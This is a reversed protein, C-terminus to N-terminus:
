MPRYIGLSQIMQSRSQILSQLAQHAKDITADAAKVLAGHEDAMSEARKADAAARTADADHDIQAGGYAWKGIAGGSDSVSKGGKEFASAWRAKDGGGAAGVTQVAGGAITMTATLAGESRTASAKEHLEAVQHKTASLQAERAARQDARAEKRIDKAMQESLVAVLQELGLALTVQNALPLHAGRPCDPALAPSAEGSGFATHIATSGMSTVNM